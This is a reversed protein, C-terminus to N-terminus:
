NANRQRWYETHIQQTIKRTQRLLLALEYREIIEPMQRWEDDKIQQVYISSAKKGELRAVRSAFLRLPESYEFPVHVGYVTACGDPAGLRRRIAASAKATRDDSWAGIKFKSLSM